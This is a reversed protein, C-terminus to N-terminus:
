EGKTQWLSLLEAVEDPTKTEIGVARCEEQIQEILAKMQARDYASSGYTATVNTCGKIKSPETQTQWGLGQAEWRQCFANVANDKICIYDSVGGIDRIAHRYIEAKTLGMKAALKDILVWCYANADLSRKRKTPSIDYEGGSFTNVFRLAAQADPVDLVLKKQAYTANDIRM